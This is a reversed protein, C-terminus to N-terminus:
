ISDSSTLTLKVPTSASACLTITSNVSPTFVILLVASNTAPTHVKSSVSIDESFSPVIVTNAVTNSLAPLVFVTLSVNTNSVKFGFAGIIKFTISIFESKFWITILPLPSSTPFMIFTYSEKFLKIPVLKTKASLVHLRFIEEKFLSILCLKFATSSSEDKLILSSELITFM